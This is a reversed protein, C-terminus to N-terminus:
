LNGFIEQNYNEVSMESFFAGNIYNNAIQQNNWTVVSPTGIFIVLLFMSGFAYFLKTKLQFDSVRPKIAKEPNNITNLIKFFISDPIILPHQKIAKILGQYENNEM